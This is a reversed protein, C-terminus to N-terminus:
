SVGQLREVRDEVNKVAKGIVEANRRMAAEGERMKGEVQELAERWRKIEGEVSEQRSELEALDSAAEAAGAHISSLSRLRELVTPLLPTLSQLTPLTSYLANIKSSQDTLLATQSEADLQASTGDPGATPASASTTASKYQVNQLRAQHM